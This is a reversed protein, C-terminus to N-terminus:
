GSRVRALVAKLCKKYERNGKLQTEVKNISTYVNSKQAVGTYLAVAAVNMKYSKVLIYRLLQRASHESRENIRDPSDYGFVSTMAEKVKDAVEREESGMVYPSKDKLYGPRVAEAAQRRQEKTSLSIRKKPLIVHTLDVMVGTRRRCDICMKQGSNIKIPLMVKGCKPDACRRGWLNDDIVVSSNLIQVM